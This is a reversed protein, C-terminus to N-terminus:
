DGLKGRASDAPRRSTLDLLDAAVLAIFLGSAIFLMRRGERMEKKWLLKPAVRQTTLLFSACRM